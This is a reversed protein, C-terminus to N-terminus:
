WSRRTSILVEIEGAEDLWQYGSRCDPLAMPHLLDIVHQWSQPTLSWAFRNSSNELLRAGVDEEAVHASLECGEVPKIFPLSHLAATTESSSALGRLADRLREAEEPVSWSLIILPCDPSGDPIFELHM